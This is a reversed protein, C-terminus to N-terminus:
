DTELMAPDIMFHRIIAAFQEQTMDRIWLSRALEASRRIQKDRKEADCKNTWYSGDDAEYIVKM